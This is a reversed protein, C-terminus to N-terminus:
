SVVGVDIQEIMREELCDISCYINGDEDYVPKNAPVPDGCYECSFDNNHEM